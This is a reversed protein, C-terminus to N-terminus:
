TQREIKFINLQTIFIFFHCIYEDYYLFNSIKSSSIYEILILIVNEM